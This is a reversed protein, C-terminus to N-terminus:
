TCNVLSILELKCAKILANIEQEHVRANTESVLVYPPDHLEAQIHFEPCIQECNGCNECNELDVYLRHMTIGGLIM